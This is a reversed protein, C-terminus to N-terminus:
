VIRGVSRRWGEGADCNLVKSTRMDSIQDVERLAWTETGYLGVSWIYCKVPKKRINLDLKSAFLTKKENFATNAMAIWSKTNRTRRADNAVMSCLSSFYEGNGMQNEDVKMQVQSPQDSIRMIKTGGGVCVCVCVCM